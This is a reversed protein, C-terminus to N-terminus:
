IINDLDIFLYSLLGCKKLFERILNIDEVSSYFPIDINENDLQISFSKKNEDYSMKNKCCHEMLDKLIQEIDKGSGSKAIALLDSDKWADGRLYIRDNILSIDNKWVCFSRDNSFNNFILRQNYFMEWFCLGTYVNQKKIQEGFHSKQQKKYDWKERLVKAEWFGVCFCNEKKFIIVADCGLKKENQQSLVLSYVNRYLKSFKEYIKVTFIATFSNENVIVRKKFLSTCEQDIKLISQKVFM